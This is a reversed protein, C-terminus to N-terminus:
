RINLYYVVDLGPTFYSCLFEQWDGRAIGAEGADLCEGCTDYQRYRIYDPLYFPNFCRLLEPIETLTPAPAASVPAAVPAPAASVATASGTVALLMATILALLRKRSM